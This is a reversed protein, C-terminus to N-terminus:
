ILPSTLSMNDEREHIVLSLSLFPLDQDLLHHMCSAGGWGGQQGRGWGLKVAEGKLSESVKNEWLPIGGIAVLGPSVSANYSAPTM